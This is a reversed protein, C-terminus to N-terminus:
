NNASWVHQLSYLSQLILKLLDNFLSLFGQPVPLFKIELTVVNFHETKLLFNLSLISVFYLGYTPFTCGMHLSLLLHPTLTVNRHLSHTITVNKNGFYKCM